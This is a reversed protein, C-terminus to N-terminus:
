NKAQERLFEEVRTQLKEAVDKQSGNLPSYFNMLIQIRIISAEEPSLRYTNELQDILHLDQQLLNNTQKRFFIQYTGHSLLQSFCFYHFFEVRSFISKLIQNSPFISVFIIFISNIVGSLLIGIGTVLPNVILLVRIVIDILQTFQNM